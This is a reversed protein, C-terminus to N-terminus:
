AERTSGAAAQEGPEGRGAATEDEAHEGVEQPLQAPVVLHVVTQGPRPTPPNDVTFVVWNRNEQVLFLPITASGYRKRFAEHDFESTLKTRKIVGGAAFRQSM